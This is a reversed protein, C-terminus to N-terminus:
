CSEEVVLLVARDDDRFEAMSFRSMPPAHDEFFDEIRTALAEREAGAVEKPHMGYCHLVRVDPGLWCAAPVKSTSRMDACTGPGVRTM